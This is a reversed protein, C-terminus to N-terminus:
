ASLKKKCKPCVFVKELRMTANNFKVNVMIATQECEDHRVFVNGNIDIGITWKKDHSAWKKVIKVM